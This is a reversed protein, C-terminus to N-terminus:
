SSLAKFIGGAKVFDLIPVKVYDVSCYRFPVTDVGNKHFMSAYCADVLVIHKPFHLTCELISHSHLVTVGRSM